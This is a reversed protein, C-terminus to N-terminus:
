ALNFPLIYPFMDNQNGIALSDYFNIEVTDGDQVSVEVTDGDQVTLEVVDGDLVSVEINDSM